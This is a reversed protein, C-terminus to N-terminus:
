GPMGIQDAELARAEREARREEAELRRIEAEREAKRLEAELAAKREELELLARRDEREARKEEREARKEELELERLRVAESGVESAVSSSDGAPLPIKSAEQAERALDTQEAESQAIKTEALTELLEARDLEELRDDDYGAKGLKLMLHATSMKKLQEQAEPPLRDM